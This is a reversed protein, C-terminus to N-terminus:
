GRLAHLVRATDCFPVFFKLFNRTAPAMAPGWGDGLEPM